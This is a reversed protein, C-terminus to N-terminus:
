DVKERYDYFGQGTKRGLKGEAVLQRLLSSIKYRGNKALSEMIALCVDLGILDGLALPGLPHNAGFKMAKDIDLASAVGEALLAAAENIQPIVLRNVVFGPSDKVLVATKGLEKLLDKVSDVTAPSTKRGSVIEVLRMAEVPNFFHLGIFRGPNNLYGALRNISLSSTNSAVIAQPSILGSAKVYVDRKIAEDEKVAEVVLTAKAIVELDGSVMLNDLIAGRKGATINNKQLDDETRNVIYTKASKYIFPDWLVVKYDHKLFLYAIQQAMVGAGLVAIEKVEKKITM